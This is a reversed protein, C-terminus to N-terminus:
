FPRTIVAPLRLLLPTTFDCKGVLVDGYQSDYSLEKIEGIKVDSYESKVELNETKTM